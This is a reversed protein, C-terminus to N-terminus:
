RFLVYQSRPDKQWTEYTKFIILWVSLLADLTLSLKLSIYTRLAVVNNGSTQRKNHLPHRDFHFLIRLAFNRWEDAAVPTVDAPM